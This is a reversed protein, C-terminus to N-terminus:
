EPTAAEEEKGAEAQEAPGKKQNKLNGILDSKEGTQIVKVRVEGFAESRDENVYIMVRDASLASGHHSLEPAETLEVTGDKVMYVARNSSARLEEGRTIVVNGECEVKEMRNQEDYHGVMTDSTILLDGKTVEVNGKYIFVRQKAELTLSASKIYLPQDSDSGSGKFDMVQQLVHGAGASSAAGGATSKETSKGPPSKKSSPKKQEASSPQAFVALSLLGFFLWVMTLVLKKQVRQTM